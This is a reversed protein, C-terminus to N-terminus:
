TSLGIIQLGDQETMVAVSAAQSAQKVVLGVAQVGPVHMIEEVIKSYEAREGYLKLGDYFTIDLIMNGEATIYPTDGGRPSAGEEYSRRRLCEGWPM